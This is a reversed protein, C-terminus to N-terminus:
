STRAAYVTAELPMRAPAPGFRVALRDAIHAVVDHPDIGGAQLDVIMPNGRVLGCSVHRWDRVDKDFRVVEHTVDSFKAKALDGRVKAMDAYGFPTLYFQPPNTPLFHAGAAHAIEGFPTTKMDSWVNFLLTGGPRLVRHAERYAARKDPLFMVGFQIVVLDFSADAFPLAMADAQQFAISASSPPKARALELMPANLDTATIRTAAPLAARLALTSIGTGAAIELM